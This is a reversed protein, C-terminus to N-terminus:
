IKEGFLRELQGSNIVSGIPVEELSVREYPVFYDIREDTEDERCNISEPFIFGFKERLYVFKSRSSVWIAYEANRCYGRYYVLDELDKKDIAVM